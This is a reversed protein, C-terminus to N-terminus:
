DYCPGVEELPIEFPYAMYTSNAVLLTTRNLFM